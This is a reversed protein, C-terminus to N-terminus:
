RDCLTLSQANSNKYKLSTVSFDLNWQVRCPQRATTGTWPTSVLSKIHAPAPATVKKLNEVVRTTYTDLQSQTPEKGASLMKNVQVVTSQLNSKLNEM